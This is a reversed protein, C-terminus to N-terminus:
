SPTAPEVCKAWAVPVSSDPSRTPASGHEQLSLCRTQLHSYLAAGEAIKVISFGEHEPILIADHGSISEPQVAFRHGDVGPIGILWEEVHQAVREIEMARLEAATEPLAARAGHVDVSCRGPRARCRDTADAISRHHRELPRATELRRVFHLGREDSFLRCLAAVAGVPHDHGRTRQQRLRRSRREILRLLRERPVDAAAACM